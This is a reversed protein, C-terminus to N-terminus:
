AGPARQCDIGFERGMEILSDWLSLAYSRLVIMEFATEGTRALHVGIHGCLTPTAAGVPFAAPDLDIAIGKALAEAAHAGSLGIRVRGHTQDVVEALGALAPAVNKTGGVAFWQGPGYPRVAAGNDPGLATEIDHTSVAAGPRALLQWLTTEPLATLVLSGTAAAKGFSGTKAAGLAPAPTLSIESM